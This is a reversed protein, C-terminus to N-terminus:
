VMEVFAKGVKDLQDHYIIKNKDDMMRNIPYTIHNFTDWLSDNDYSVAQIIASDKVVETIIKQKHLNEILQISDKGKVGNLKQAIAIQAEALEAIKNLIKVENVFQGLGHNTHRYNLKIFARRKLLRFQNMCFLRVPSVWLGLPTSGDLSSILNVYTQIEDGNVKHIEPLSISFIARANDNSCVAKEVKADPLWEMVRSIAEDHSIPQYRSGVVGYSNDRDDVVVFRNNVEHTCGHDGLYLAPELRLQKIARLEQVIEM